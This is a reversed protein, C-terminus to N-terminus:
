GKLFTYEEKQGSIAILKYNSSSLKKVAQITREKGIGPFRHHFEILIQNIEINSALIDNLVEYESGEIDMKLIDIKSHGLEKVITDFKKVPVNVPIINNGKIGWRNFTAGSIHNTNEPLFFQIFGDHDSIGYPLFIFNNPLSQTKIFQISRPTPDFGYVKCDFEKIIARDFSIDDGIGFSYVISDKNIKEPMVFFGTHKNGYWKTFCSKQIKFYVEKGLLVKLLFKLKKFAEM